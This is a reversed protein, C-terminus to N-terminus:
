STAKCAEIILYSFKRGEDNNEERSIHRYHAFIYNAILTGLDFAAPGVFGFEMDILKADSGKVLVSGTHLDGHILCEKKEQFIKLMKSATDLVDQDKYVTDLREKVPDSSHNTEDQQNFPRTFIYQKSLECM